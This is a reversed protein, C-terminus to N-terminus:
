PVRRDVSTRMAGLSSCCTLDYVAVAAQFIWHLEEIAVPDPQAPVSGNILNAVFEGRDTFSRSGIGDVPDAGRFERVLIGVDEALKRREPAGVVDVVCCADAM